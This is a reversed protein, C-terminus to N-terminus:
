YRRTTETGNKAASLKVVSCAKATYTATITYTGSSNTKFNLTGDTLAGSTKTIGSEITWASFTYGDIAPAAQSAATVEGVNEKTTATKIVATGCKYQVTVNHQTEAFNATVTAVGNATMTYVGSAANTKISGDGTKTWNVFHYHDNAQAYINYDGDSTIDTYSYSDSTWSDEGTIKVKGNAGAVVELEGAPIEEFTATITADASITATSTASTNDSFTVSGSGVTWEKFRYGSSATASLNYSTKANNTASGSASEGNSGCNVTLLPKRTFFAYITTATKSTDSGATIRYTSNTSSVTSSSAGWGDFAWQADAALATYSFDVQGTTVDAITASKTSGSATAKQSSGASITGNGTLQRAQAFVSTPANFSTGYSGGTVKTRVDITMNNKPINGYGNKYTITMAKNSGSSAVTLLYSSGGNMDYKSSNYAATYGNNGKTSLSSSGWSTGSVTTSSAIVAYYTADTWADTVDAYYLSTGSLNTMSYAKSYASPKDHGIVFYLNGTWGSVSNDWYIYKHGSAITHIAPINYSATCGDFSSSKVKYTNYTSSYTCSVKGWSEGGCSSSQDRKFYLTGSTCRTDIDFKILADACLVTGTANSYGDWVTMCASADDWNTAATIDLYITKTAGWATNISAISLIFSLLLWKFNLLNKM